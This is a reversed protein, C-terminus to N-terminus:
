LGARGSDHHSIRALITRRGGMGRSEQLIVYFMTFAVGIMLGEVPFKFRNNEGYGSLSSIVATYIIVWHVVWMGPAWLLRRWDRVMLPGVLSFPYALVLPLYLYPYFLEFWPTRRALVERLRKRFDGINCGRAYVPPRWFRKFSHGVSELYGAPHSIILRLSLSVLSRSLQVDNMGTAQKMEERAEWIANARMGTDRLHAEQYRLYIGAIRAYQPPAENMFQGTHNTLHYGSFTSLTFWGFRGYNLMEWGMVLVAFPILGAAIAKSTRGRIAREKWTLGIIAAMAALPLLQFVPRTVAALSFATSSLGTCRAFNVRSNCANVAFLTGLSILFCALIETLVTREFRITSPNLTYVLAVAVALAPSDPVRLFIRFLLQSTLVGLVLNGAFVGQGNGGLLAVFLPFLPTRGGVDQSFFTGQRIARALLLYYASDDDYLPFVYVV